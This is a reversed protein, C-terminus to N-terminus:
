LDDSSASDITQSIHLGVLRAVLVTLYIQGTIAELYCLVQTANSRPIIDGYGLTTLTSYSFYLIQPFMEKIVVHGVRHSEPGLELSISGPGLTDVIVFFYVWILGLLLYICLSAKITEITVRSDHFIAALLTRAAYSLLAATLGYHLLYVFQQTPDLAALEHAVLNLAILVMGLFRTWRHRSAAFVGALVVLSILIDLAWQRGWHDTLIPALVLLLLLAGLLHGYRGRLLRRLTFDVGPPPAPPAPESVSTLPPSPLTM